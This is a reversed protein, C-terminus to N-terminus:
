RSKKLHVTWGIWNVIDIVVLFYIYAGKVNTGFEISYMLDMSRTDDTHYIEGKNTFYKEQEPSSIVKLM